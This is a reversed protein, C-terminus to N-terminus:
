WIDTFKHIPLVGINLIERGKTKCKRIFAKIVTQPSDLDFIIRTDDELDYFIYKAMM